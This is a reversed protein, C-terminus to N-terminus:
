FHLINGNKNLRKCEALNAVKKIMQSKVLNNLFSIMYIYKAYIILM